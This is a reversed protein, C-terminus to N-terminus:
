GYVIDGYVAVQLIGSSTCLDQDQWDWGGGCHSYGKDLCFQYAKLLDEIGLEKSVTSEENDPDEGVITFRGMKEWTTDGQYKITVWCEGFEWGGGMTESWFDEYEDQTIEM